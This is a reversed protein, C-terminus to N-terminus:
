PAVLKATAPDWRWFKSQGTGQGIVTTIWIGNKTMQDTVLREFVGDTDLVLLPSGRRPLLWAKTTYSDGPESRMSVIFVDTDAGQFTGSEAVEFHVDGELRLQSVGGPDYFYIYFVPGALRFREQLGFTLIMQWGAPSRVRLFPAESPRVLSQLSPVYKGLVVARRPPVSQQMKVKDGDVLISYCLGAETPSCSTALVAASLRVGCLVTILLVRFMVGSIDFATM